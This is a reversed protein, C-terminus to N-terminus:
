REGGRARAYARWGLAYRDAPAFRAYHAEVMEVTDLLVSAAAEFSGTTKVIATAVVHRVSHPGFPLLGPPVNPLAAVYASRKYFMSTLLREKELGPFLPVLNGARGHSLLPHVETLYVHFLEELLVGELEQALVPHDPDKLPFRVPDGDRLHTFVKSAANKFEDKRFVLYYVGGERLVHGKGQPFDADPRFVSVDLRAKCWHKRRLPHATTLWWLVADRYLALAEKQKGDRFEPARLDGVLGKLDALMLRVGGLLYALPDATELLPEVAHYGPTMDVHKEVRKRLDKLEALSAELDTFGRTELYRYLKQVLALFSTESRTAPKFDEGYELYRRWRWDVYDRVLDARTLLEFGPELGCVQMLYGYFLELHVLESALTTSRVPRQATEQDQLALRLQRFSGRPSAVHRKYDEWEEKAREPWREFPLRFPRRLAVRTRLQRNSLRKWREEDERLLAEREAEGLDKFPVGHRALSAVRLFTRTFDRYTGGKVGLKQQGWRPVKGVLAGPPLGLVSELKEVAARSSPSGRGRLWNHVTRETVGAERAVTRLSLGSRALAWGLAEPFTPPIEDLTKEKLVIERAKKVASPFHPRPRGEVRQLHDALAQVEEDSLSALWARFDAVDPPVVHVIRRFHSAYSKNFQEALRRAIEEVAEELRSVVMTGEEKHPFAALLIIAGPDTDSERPIGPSQPRPSEQPLAGAPRKM